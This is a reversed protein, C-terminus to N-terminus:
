ACDGAVGGSALYQSGQERVGHFLEGGSVPDNLREFVYRDARLFITYFDLELRDELFFLSPM